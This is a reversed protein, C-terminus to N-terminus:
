EPKAGTARIIPAWDTIEKRVFAETEATTSPGMPVMGAFKRSMEVFEPTALARNLTDNLKRVVAEPTGKPAQLVMWVGPELGPFGAEATTPVEPIAPDRKPSTVAIAKLKGSKIHPVASDMGLFSYTLDGAILAPVINANGRYPVHTVGALGAKLNLLESALHLGSGIGSTGYSYKGPNAKLVQVFETLSKAPFGPQTVLVLYTNAVKGISVFDNLTDYPLKPYMTANIALSFTNFLLTYGDAPAKAVADTGLTSGAGTRNEVVMSQGLLAGMRQAVSRGVLDTPGGAAFPVILKIPRNPYDQAPAQASAAGSAALTVCLAVSRLFHKM